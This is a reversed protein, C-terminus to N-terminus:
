RGGDLASGNAGNSAEGPPEARGEEGLGVGVELAMHFPFTYRAQSTGLRTLRTDGISCGGGSRCPLM